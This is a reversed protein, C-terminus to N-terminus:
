RSEGPSGQDQEPPSQSRGVSEFPVGHDQMHIDSDFDSLGRSGSLWEGGIYDGRADVDYSTDRSPVGPRQVSAPFTPIIAVEHAILSHRDPAGEQASTSHLADEDQFPVAFDDALAGQLGEADETVPAAVDDRLAAEAEAQVGTLDQSPHTAM